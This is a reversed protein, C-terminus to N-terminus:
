KLSRTLYTCKRYGNKALGEGFHWHESRNDEAEDYDSSAYDSENDYEETDEIHGIHIDGSTGSIAIRPATTTASDDRRSHRRPETSLQEALADEVITMTSRMTDREPQQANFLSSAISARNGASLRQSLRSSTAPPPPPRVPRQVRALKGDSTRSTVTKYSPTSSSPRSSMLSDRHALEWTTLKRRVAVVTGDPQGFEIIEYGDPVVAAGGAPGGGLRENTFEEITEEDSGRRRLGKLFRDM